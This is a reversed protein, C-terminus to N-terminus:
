AVGYVAAPFAVSEDFPPETRKKANDSDIKAGIPISVFLGVVSGIVATTKHSWRKKLRYIRQIDSQELEHIAGDAILTLTSGDVSVFKAEIIGGLKTEVLITQRPKISVLGQWDKIGTNTASQAVAVVPVMFLLMLILLPALIMNKM